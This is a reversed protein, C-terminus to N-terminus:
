HGLWIKALLVVVASGGGIAAARLDQKVQWQQMRDVRAVLGTHGFEEEGIVARRIAAVDGSIKDSKASLAEVAKEINVRWESREIESM